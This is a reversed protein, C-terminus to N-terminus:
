YSSLSSYLERCIKNRINIDRVVSEELQKFTTSNNQKFIGEIIPVMNNYSYIVMYQNGDIIFTKSVKEKRNELHKKNYKKGNKQHLASPTKNERNHSRLAKGM